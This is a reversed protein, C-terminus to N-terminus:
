AESRQLASARVMRRIWWALAISGFVVLLWPVVHAWPPTPAFDTLVKTGYQGVYTDLIEADSKGEQVWRAIEIRMRVAVESQHVKVPERYCCPALLRGELAAIREQATEAAFSGPPLTAFCLVAM